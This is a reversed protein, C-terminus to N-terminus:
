PKFRYENDKWNKMLGHRQLVANLARMKIAGAELFMSIRLYDKARGTDLMIAVLHEPRMIRTAIGAYKITQAKEVAEETLPNFVPLFQVPIGEIYIFEGKAKYGKETLYEYIPALIALDNGTAHVQVFIDLDATDFPELYYIAAVAGGIAYEEIVGDKVMQNIIKLTERM